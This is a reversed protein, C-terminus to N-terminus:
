LQLLYWKPNTIKRYTKRFYHDTYLFEPAQETSTFCFKRPLHRYISVPPKDYHINKVKYGTSDSHYYINRIGLECRIFQITAALMAEDWIRRYPELVNECYEIVDDTKGDSNSWRIRDHNFRKRRKAHLLLYKARKIWDCQVEEILAMDSGFDIDMRSWALTERFYKRANVEFVPHNCYNLNQEDEPRVMAKYKRDHMNSFNLQLVLNYGRRSTQDWKHNNSGWIGLTLLFHYVHESWVYNLIKPTLVGQGVDSLLRNIAPKELLGSYMSKKLCKISQGEGIIHKLLLVAYRDKFYGFLTREKPLCDIIEKIDSLKM